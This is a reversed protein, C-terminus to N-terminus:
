SRDSSIPFIPRFIFMLGELMNHFLVPLDEEKQGFFLPLNKIKRSIKDAPSM